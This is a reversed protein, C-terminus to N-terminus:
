VAERTRKMVKKKPGRLGWSQGRGGYREVKSELIDREVVTRENEGLQDVLGVMACAFADCQNDEDVDYNWRKYVQKIMASKEGAGKGTIFRKLSSPTIILLNAGSEWIYKRVCGGIEGMSHAQQRSFAYGEVVVLDGPSLMGRRATLWSFIATTVVSLRESGRLDEGARILASDVDLMSEDCKSKPDGIAVCIGPGQLSLDLGIVSGKWRTM